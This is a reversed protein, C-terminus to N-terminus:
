RMSIEMECSVMMRPSERLRETAADDIVESPAKVNVSSVDGVELRVSQPVLSEFFVGFIIVFATIGWFLQPSERTLMSLGPLSRGNCKEGGRKAM